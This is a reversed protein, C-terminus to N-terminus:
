FFFSVNSIFKAFLQNQKGDRLAGSESEKRCLTHEHNLIVHFNRQVQKQCFTLILYFILYKWIVTKTLFTKYQKTYM